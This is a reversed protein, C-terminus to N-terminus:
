QSPHLCNQAAGVRKRFVLFAIGKAIHFHIQAAVLHYTAAFPNLKRAGLKVQKFVEQAVASLRETAVPKKVFDPTVFIKRRRSGDISMNNVEPLARVRARPTM